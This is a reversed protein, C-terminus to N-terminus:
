EFVVFAALRPALMLAIGYEKYELSSSEVNFGMLIFIRKASIDTLRGIPIKSFMLMRIPLSENGVSKMTISMTSSKSTGM